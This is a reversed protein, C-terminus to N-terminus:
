YGSDDLDVKLEDGNLTFSGSLYISTRDSQPEWSDDFFSKQQYSLTASGRSTYFSGGTLSVSSVRPYSTISWKIDKYSDDGYFAYGRIPCGPPAMETSRACVDLKQKIAAEIDTTLQRTAKPRIARATASYRSAAVVTVTDSTVYKSKHASVAYEGPYVKFTMASSGSGSAESANKETVTIGNIDLATMSDTTYVALDKLLPTTVKWNKFFLYRSGSPSVSITDSQMKGAVTYTFSVTEVNGNSRTSTIQVNSMRKGAKAANDKLLIDRGSELQPDAIGNAREYQGSEISQLYREAVPRAGFVTSSLVSYAIGLAALMAVVIGAIIIMRKAQASMPKAPVAAVPPAMPAGMPAGTPIPATGVQGVAPAGDATYMPAPAVGPPYAASPPYQGSQPQQDAQPYQGTQPYQGIPANQIPQPMPQGQMASPPGATQSVATPPVATRPEASQPVDTQSMDTQPGSTQPGANQSREATMMPPAPIGAPAQVLVTGGVLFRWLGPQSRVVAPGFTLAVVEVLFAWLAALIFFWPAPSLTVNAMTGNGAMSLMSPLSGSLRIGAAFSAVLFSLVLWIGATILPSRWSKDWGARSPDYTNRASARLAIYFSTLLLVVFVIIVLWAPPNSSSSSWLSISGANGPTIVSVSGLAAAVFVFIPLAPFLLPFLLLGTMEQGKIAGAILLLLGVVTFVATYIVVSEVVTRVAGRARHAWRWAASFLNDADPTSAALVYGGLAGSGALLFAMAVTRVTLGGLTVRTGSALGSATGISSPLLAAIILYVLASCVGVLAANIAVSWRDRPGGSRAILFVGFAAGIMLAVGSLGVPLWLYANVTVSGFSGAASTAEVSFQGSVGAVLAIILMQLFNTGAGSDSMGGSQSSGSLGSLSASIDRLMSGQVILLLGATILALIVASALGIGTSIGIGKWTHPKALDELMPNRSPPPTNGPVQQTVPPSQPGQPSPAYPQSPSSQRPQAAENGSGSVTAGPMGGNLPAGPANHQETRNGPEHEPRNAETDGPSHDANGLPHGVHDNTM